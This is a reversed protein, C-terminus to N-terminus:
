SNNPTLRLTYNRALNPNKKIERLKMTKFVL